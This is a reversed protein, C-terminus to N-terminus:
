AHWEGNADITYGDVVTNTVMKGDAGVYYWVSGSSDRAIWSNTLMVGNAGAYYWDNNSDAVWRNSVTNGNQYFVWQGNEFQWWDKVITGSIVLKAYLAEVLDANAKVTRREKSTMASYYPGKEDLLETVAKRAAVIKVADETTFTNKLALDEIDTTAAKILSELDTVGETLADYVSEEDKPDVNTTLIRAIANGSGNTTNFESEGRVYRAYAADELRLTINGNSREIVDVTFFENFFDEVYTKLTEIDNARVANLAAYYDTDDEKGARYNEAEKALTDLDLKRGDKYADSKFLDNVDKIEEVITDLEDMIDTVVSEEDVKSYVIADNGNRDKMATKDEKINKIFEELTSLNGRAFDEGNVLDKVTVGDIVETDELREAFKDAFDGVYTSEYDEVANEILSFYENYVEAYKMGEIEDGLNINSLVPKYYVLADYLPKVVDYQDDNLDVGDYEGEEKFGDYLDEIAAKLNSVRVDFQEFKTESGILQAALKGETSDPECIVLNQLKKMNESVWVRLEKNDTGVPADTTANSIGKKGVNTEIDSMYDKVTNLADKTEALMSYSCTAANVDTSVTPLVSTVMTLAMASALLKKFNNM